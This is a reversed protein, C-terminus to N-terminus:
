VDGFSAFPEIPRFVARPTMELRIDFNGLCSPLDLDALRSFDITVWAWARSAARSMNTLWAAHVFPRYADEPSKQNNVLIMGAITAGRFVDLWLV